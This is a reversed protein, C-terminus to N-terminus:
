HAAPVRSHIKPPHVYLPEVSQPNAVEGAALLRLAIRALVGAHRPRDPASGELIEIDQAGTGDATRLVRFVKGPGAPMLVEGLGYEEGIIEMTPVGVLPLSRALCLGKATSLGVRLGNFSGPGLAVAVTDIQQLTVRALKLAHDISPLLTRTHEQEALWTTEALLRQGDHVAVSAYHTSTDIALLM